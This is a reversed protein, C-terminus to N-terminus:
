VSRKGANGKKAQDSSSVKLRKLEASSLKFSGSGKCSQKAMRLVGEDLGKKLAM